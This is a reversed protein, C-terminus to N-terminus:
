DALTVRLEIYSKEPTDRVYVLQQLIIPHTQENISAKVLHVSTIYLVAETKGSRSCLDRCFASCRIGYM